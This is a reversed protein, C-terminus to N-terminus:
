LKNQNIKNSTTITKHYPDRIQFTLGFQGLNILYIIM